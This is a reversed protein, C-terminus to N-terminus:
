LIVSWDSKPYDWKEIQLKPDAPPVSFDFHEAFQYLRLSTGILSIIHFTIHYLFYHHKIHYRYHHDLINLYITYMIAIMIVM